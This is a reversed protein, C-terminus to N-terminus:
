RLSFSQLMQEYVPFVVAEQNDPVCFSLDYAFVDKILYYDTCHITIYTDNFFFQRFQCQYDFQIANINSILIEKQTGSEFGNCGKARAIGWQIVHEMVGSQIETSAIEVRPQSKGPPNIVAIVDPDNHDGNTFEHINWTKPHEISFPWNKGEYRVLPSPLFVPSRLTPIFILQLSVTLVGLLVFGAFLLIIYYLCTKYTKNM